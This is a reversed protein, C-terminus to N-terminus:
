SKVQSYYHSIIQSMKTRAHFLNSKINGAPMQLIGAVEPVDLGELDRLIFVAKQKPTLTEAAKILLTKLEEDIVAQDASQPARIEEGSELALHRTDQKRQKSKLYDLCINTVIKYLWTTLKIEAKYRSISKWLRLFTEQALDEADRTNNVFRHAVAFVFDQHDEVIIRFANADGAMAKRIVTDPTRNAGM